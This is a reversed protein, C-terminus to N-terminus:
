PLPTRPSFRAVHLRPHKGATSEWFFVNRVTVKLPPKSRDGHHKHLREHLRSGGGLSQRGCHRDLDPFQGPFLRPAELCAAMGGEQILGLGRKVVGNHKRGDVGTLEHHITKERCLSAFAENVFETGNDPLM